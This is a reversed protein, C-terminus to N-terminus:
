VSGNSRSISLNEGADLCSRVDRAELWALHLHYAVMQMKASGALQQLCELAQLLEGLEDVVYSVNMPERNHEQTKKQPRM